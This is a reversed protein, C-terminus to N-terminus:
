ILCTLLEDANKAVFIDDRGTFNKVVEKHDESRVIIKFNKMLQICIPYNIVNYLWPLDWLVLWNDTRSNNNSLVQASDLGFAVAIGKFNSVGTINMSLCTPQMMQNVVNQFFIQPVIKNDKESIRNVLDLIEYTQESNGLNNVVIGLNM